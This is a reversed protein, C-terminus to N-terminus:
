FLLEVFDIFLCFCCRRNIDEGIFVMVYLGVSM